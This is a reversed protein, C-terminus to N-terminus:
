VNTDGSRTSSRRDTFSRKAVATRAVSHDHDLAQRVASSLEIESVILASARRVLELDAPTWDRPQQDMVLLSGIPRGDSTDIPMGVCARVTGDRVAPNEAVAADRQGDAVVLTQRSDVVQKRFTHSLLLALPVPLGYSSTLLRRDTDVLSAVVAAVALTEGALETIRDLAAQSAPAPRHTGRPLASPQYPRAGRRSRHLVLDPEM